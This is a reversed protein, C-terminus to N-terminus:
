GETGENRQRWEMTRWEKTRGNRQGELGKDKWDKTRGTRQGERNNKGNHITRVIGKWQGEITRNDREM